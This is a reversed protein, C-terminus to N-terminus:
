ALAQGVVDIPPEEPPRPEIPLDTVVQSGGVDLDDESAPASDAEAEGAGTPPEDPTALRHLGSMAVHVTGRAVTDVVGIVTGALGFAGKTVAVPNALKLPNMHARRM